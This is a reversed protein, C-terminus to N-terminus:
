AADKPKLLEEPLRIGQRVAAIAVRDTVAESLEEPWQSVNSKTCGYARSLSAASGFLSIAQKKTM